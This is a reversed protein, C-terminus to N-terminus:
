ENASKRQSKMEKQKNKYFTNQVNSIRYDEKKEKSKREEHDQRDALQLLKITDITNTIFLILCALAGTFHISNKYIVEIILIFSILIRVETPGLLGADISYANTIKYHLLTTLIEWGYFVVFLFGLVEWESNAYIIFGGGMLLMGIWDVTLDLTFGYWKRPINRYYAVRGDLSDGFWCVLYGVIGLLLYSRDLYSAMVFATLIIVSGFLGIGTLLDSSMWDPIKQVLYAIAKQEQVKLINTRVRDQSIIKQVEDLTQRNNM